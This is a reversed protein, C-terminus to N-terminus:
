CNNFIRKLMINHSFNNFCFSHIEYICDTISRVRFNQRIMFISSNEIVVVDRDGKALWDIVDHLGTFSSWCTSTPSQGQSFFTSTFETFYRLDGINRDICKSIKLFTAHGQCPWSAITRMLQRFPVFTSNFKVDSSIM